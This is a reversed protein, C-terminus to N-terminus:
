VAPVYVGRWFFYSPGGPWFVAPGDECHIAGDAVRLAPRPVSLVEEGCVLFIWHGGEFATVFPEWIALWRAIAARRGAGGLWWEEASLAAAEASVQGATDSPSGWVGAEEEAALWAARLAESRVRTSAPWRAPLRWQAGAASGAAAVAAAEVESEWAQLWTGVAGEALVAEEADAVWRLPLPELGLQACHARFARSIRTQDHRPQALDVSALRALMSQALAPSSM